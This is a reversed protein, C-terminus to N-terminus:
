IIRENKNLFLGLLEIESYKTVAQNNAEQRDEWTLLMNVALDLNPNLKFCLEKLWENNNIVACFNIVARDLIGNGFNGIPIAYKNYCVVLALERTVIRGNLLTLRLNPLAKFRFPIIPAETLHQELLLKHLGMVASDTDTDVTDSVMTIEM